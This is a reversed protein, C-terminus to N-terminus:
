VMQLGEQFDTLRVFKTQFLVDHSRPHTTAAQQGPASPMLSEGTTPIFRTSATNELGQLQTFFFSKGMCYAFLLFWSFRLPAPASSQNRTAIYRSCVGLLRPADKTATGGNLSPAGRVLGAVSEYHLPHM